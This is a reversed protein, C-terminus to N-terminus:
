LFCPIQGCPSSTEGALAESLVQMEGDIDGMFIRYDGLHHGSFGETWTKKLRCGMNQVGHYKSAPTPINHSEHFQLTNLSM